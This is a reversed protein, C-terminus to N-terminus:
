KNKETFRLEKSLVFCSMSVYFVVEYLSDKFLHAQVPTISDFEDIFRAEM